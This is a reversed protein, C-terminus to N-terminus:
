ESLRKFTEYFDEFIEDSLEKLRPNHFTIKTECCEAIAISSLSVNPLVEENHSTQEVATQNKKSSCLRIPSFQETIPNARRSKNNTFNKKKKMKAGKM